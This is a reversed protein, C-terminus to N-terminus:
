AQKKFLRYSYVIPVIVMVAIVVLLFVLAAPAALFLSVVAILLGGGFWIRGGLQHTKRWNDDNSLTWPLRIGAFYNPKIHVMYNGIFACMVGLLPFLLNQWQGDGKASRIILFNLAAMFVVLGAGLKHFTSAQAADNRKPDIRHLNKMLFYVGVSLGAIIGVPMWLENKSGMRDPKLDAGFHVPVIEPLSPWIFLLYAAPATAVLLIVVTPLVKKM